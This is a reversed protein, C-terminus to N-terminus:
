RFSNVHNGELNRNRRRTYHKERAEGNPQKRSGAAAPTGRRSSGNEIEILTFSDTKLFHTGAAIM